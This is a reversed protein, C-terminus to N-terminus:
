PSLEELVKGRTEIAFFGTIVAGFLAVIAFVLFATVISYHAVIVGVVMPGVASAVRLWASGVGSGLARMRTPYIEPNYLYLAVSISGIFFYSLSAYLLVMQPSTAGQLWLIFMFAFGGIFSMTFWTKRGMIDIFFACVLTGVLGVISTILSYGLAQQLPLKYIRTYLSPLWAAFGYNCFYGCFWIVWVTLTRRLYIGQFLEAWRTARAQVPALRSVDVPPLEQRGDESVIREIETVVKEAEDFRKKNALWRPSEPLGRRLVPVMLAPIAGIAFMYRWGLHPVVWFGLLAACVLGVAFIMEYLLVFRGRGKAKCLENIYAAAIPVEGGLGIGQILRFTFLSWYSWSFICLVSFISFVSVTWVLARIRGKKEAMAGFLFAGILQGVYGTSILLGIETPAIKWIPIIVPLIYAIMLADLADFFTAVGVIVRMKVHWAHFPLREIRAIINQQRVADDAM